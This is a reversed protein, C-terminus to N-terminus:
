SCCFTKYKWKLRWYLFLKKEVKKVEKIWSTPDTRVRIQIRFVPHTYFLGCLYYLNNMVKSIWVIKKAWPAAKGSSSFFVTSGTTFGTTTLAASTSSIIDKRSFMAGELCGSFRWWWRERDREREGRDSERSRRCCLFFFFRLRLRLQSWSSWSRRRRLRLRLPSRFFCRRCCRLRLRSLSLSLFFSSSNLFSASLIACASAGSCNLYTGTHTM